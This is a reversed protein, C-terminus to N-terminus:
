VARLCDPEGLSAYFGGDTPILAGLLDTRTKHVHPCQTGQLEISTEESSKRPVGIAMVRNGQTLSLCEARAACTGLLVAFAPSSGSAAVGPFTSSSNIGTRGMVCRAVCPLCICRALEGRRELLAILIELARSGLPVQKDVELPLFQTPLLRFPGFTSGSAHMMVERVKVPYNAPLSATLGIQPNPTGRVIGRQHRGILAKTANGLSLNVLRKGAEVPVRITLATAALGAAPGRASIV